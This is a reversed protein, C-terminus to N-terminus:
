ADIIDTCVGDLTRQFNWASACMDELTRRATWDLLKMAKEPNAYCAAV